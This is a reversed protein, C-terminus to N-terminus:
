ISFSMPINTGTDKKKNTRRERSVIITAATIVSGAAAATTVGRQPSRGATAGSVRTAEGAASAETAGTVTRRAPVPIGVAGERAARM